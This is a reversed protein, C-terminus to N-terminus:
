MITYNTCSGGGGGLRGCQRWTVPKMILGVDYKISIVGHMNECEM